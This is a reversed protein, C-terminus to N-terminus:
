IEAVRRFASARKATRLTAGPRPKLTGGPVAAPLDRGSTPELRWQAAIHALALTAETFSFNDGLCKRAGMGFPILEARPHRPNEGLWRDPDYSAPSEYLDARHHILHPSCVLTTGAAISYGGLEADTTATRTLIWVPPFHRLTEMLLARTFVLQSLDGFSLGRVDIAAVEDHLRDQLASNHALVHLTWSLLDATTDTGAILFAMVQDGVGPDGPGAGCASSESALIISLLDNGETADARRDAILGSVVQRLRKNAISYRRQGPTPLDRVLRPTLMRRYIGATVVSVDDIMTPLDAAGMRASGFLTALLTRVSLLHMQALADITGGDHWCETVGAIADLMLPLFGTLRESRLAPQLSRRQERHEAHPCTIVNNGAADRARDYLAGGKDFTRDDHLVRRTLEPDCVVIAASGGIRVVVLDGYSPLTALFKIPDRLLPIAHGLVPVAGPAVRISTRTSMGIM